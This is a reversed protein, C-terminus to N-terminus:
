SKAGQIKEITKTTSKGDVFEVLKTQKAIDSGVVEKGEYDAGKVLIDPEVVKILEYPTDEDFIVVYDICELASLIYARDEENNIPRDEGKLRKVSADSNLGLILVDGFSKAVNLYSVHGRHLIDFCGNTFVVKKGQNKLRLSIKEIEERSKIHLEISSKHLSAQYEEIEDLTATASGIKSVVVGAALNAFEVSNQIDCGLSLAFGLSALVTDGAGTVDYVERAVTPKIIVEDNDLIAIGNESLTILSVGLSADAKLKELAKRLSDDNEIQIGSAIQAEKKNPTLLYAGKYKSFDNGKPDVLVKKNYKNAYSIVKELLERTLVGKNYDSLLITDYSTIKEQLKDFIAKASTSSISNKSEKDYRVVQSHSAMLRTKRSTKRGSQEVLFSKVGQKDLMSKVEHGAEDNGIVSMVSVESGLAVLNSIVNGAGGLVKTEKKIDVVQVPAEPSIRDCTGWLYEDIMLDGIVLIRPQYESVLKQINQM